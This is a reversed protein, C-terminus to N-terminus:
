DADAPAAVDGADAASPEPEDGALAQTEGAGGARLGAEALAQEIADELPDLGPESPTGFPLAANSM